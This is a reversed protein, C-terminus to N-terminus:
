ADMPLQVSSDGFLDMHLLVSVGILGNLINASIVKRGGFPRHSGQSDHEVCRFTDASFSLGGFDVNVRGLNPRRFLNLYPM